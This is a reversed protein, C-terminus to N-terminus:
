RPTYLGAERLVRVAGAPVLGEIPQGNVMRERLDTSSVDLRPIQVRELRWEGPPSASQEGCREVVVLTATRRVDDVRKWTGIRAAVDSGVILFLERGRAALEAVTDATFTPGGRAIEVDSAELGQIGEVAARVAALRVDAPAVVQGEKQWPSAAVVLLVRDLELAARAEVAAVVHGVHVPDFTGGLLGLREVVRDTGGPSAGESATVQPM